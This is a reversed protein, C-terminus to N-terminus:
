EKLFLEGLLNNYRLGQETPFYRGPSKDIWGAEVAKYLAAVYVKELPEGFLKEFREILIGEQTRLGMFCFEAQRQSTSLNETHIPKRKEKVWLDVQLFYNELTEPNELRGQGDFGCAGAGFGFYSQYRWYKLNHRCEGGSRSFNSVEYRKWKEEALFFQLWDYMEEEEESSPLPLTGRRELEYFATGEELQLGYVSLHDIPLYIAKRLTEQFSEPTQEPLGYIFDLNVHRFGAKQAEAVAKEAQASSHIRGCAKLEADNFSQVGVSARNWGRQYYEQWEKWQITEPNVELTIESSSDVSFQNQIEDLIMGLRDAGLLTPTGGGFFITDVQKEKPTLFQSRFKIELILKEVYLDWVFSDTVYSAFDCYGCKSRCFPIHVYIGIKETSM